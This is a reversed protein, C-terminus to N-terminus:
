RANGMTSVRRGSDGDIPIIWLEHRWPLVHCKVVSKILCIRQHRKHTARLGISESVNDFWIAIHKEEVTLTTISNAYKVEYNDGSKWLGNKRWPMPRRLKKM